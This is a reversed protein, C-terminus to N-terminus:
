LLHQAATNLLHPRHETGQRKDLQAPTHTGWSDRLRQRQRGLRNPLHSMTVLASTKLASKELFVPRARGTQQFVILFLSDDGHNAGVRRFAMRAPGHSQHGLLRNLPPYQWPDAAFGNPNQKKAVVELRPPFFIHHTGSSLSSYM